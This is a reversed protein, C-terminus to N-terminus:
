MYGHKILYEKFLKRHEKTLLDKVEDYSYFHGNKISDQDMVKVYKTYKKDYEGTCIFTLAGDYYIGDVNLVDKHWWPQIKYVKRVEVGSYEVNKPIILAEEECERVAANEIYEKPDDIGGGPIKYFTDYQTIKNQKHLFLKDEKFLLIESRVRWKKGESHLILNPIPHKTPGKTTHYCNKVECKYPIKTKGIFRRKDSSENLDYMTDGDLQYSM